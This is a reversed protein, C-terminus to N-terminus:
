TAQISQVGVGTRHGLRPARPVEPNQPVHEARGEPAQQQPPTLAGIGGVYGRAVAGREVPAVQAVAGLDVLQELRGLGRLPDGLLHEVPADVDVRVVGWRASAWGSMRGSDAM